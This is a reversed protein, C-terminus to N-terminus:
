SVGKSRATMVYDSHLSELMQSRTQRAITGISTVGAAICPMIYHKWSGIGYSPLLGLYLSFVLMMIMAFWFGPISTTFMSLMICFRDQWKNQHVAATIGLPIAVLIYMLCSFGAIILTRPLRTLFEQTVSNKYIYSTGLDFDLFVQKLFRVLQVIYPQDLGLEAHKEAIQESTPNEGLLAEAPDGPTFYLLSFIVIAVALLVPIMWLLRKLVYKLM